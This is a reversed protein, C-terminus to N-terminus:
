YIVYYLWTYMVAVAAVAGVIMTAEGRTM